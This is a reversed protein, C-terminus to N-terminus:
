SSLVAELWRITLPGAWALVMAVIVSPVQRRRVGRAILWVIAAIWAALLSYVIAFYAFSNIMPPPAESGPEASAPLRPVVGGSGPM